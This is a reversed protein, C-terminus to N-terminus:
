GHRRRKQERQIVDYRQPGKGTRTKKATRIIDRELREISSYLSVAHAELDLIGLKKKFWNIM